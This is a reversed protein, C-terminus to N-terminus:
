SGLEAFLAPLRQERILSADTWAAEAAQHARGRARVLADEWPVFRTDGEALGHRLELRLSDTLRVLQGALDYAAYGESMREFYRALDHVVASMALDVHAHASGAWADLERELARERAAAAHDAAVVLQIRDLRWGGLAELVRDPVGPLHLLDAHFREMLEATMRVVKGEAAAEALDTLADVLDSSVPAKALIGRRTEIEREARGRERDLDSRLTDLRELRPLPDLHHGPLDLLATTTEFVPKRATAHLLQDIPVILPSFWM